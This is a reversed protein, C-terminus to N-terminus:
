NLPIGIRKWRMRFGEQNWSWYVSSAKGKVKRKDLFGWHRSDFSNDRNDGLVFIFNPPVTIPGFNDRPRIKQPIIMPDNHIVYSEQLKKENIYVQKDRIEVLDGETAILRKIFDRNSAKPHPFLIIDGPRPEAFYYVYKNVLIYDGKLITPQMSKAPIGYPQAIFTGFIISVISFIIISFITIGIAIGISTKFRSSIIFVWFIIPAFLLLGQVLLEKAGFFKLAIATICITLTLLFIFLCTVFANKFTVFYLKYLRSGCYLVLPSLVLISGTIWVILIIAFGYEM